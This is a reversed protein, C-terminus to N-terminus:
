ERGKLCVHAAVGGAVARDDPGASRQGRLFLALRALELNLPAGNRGRPSRKCLTGRGTILPLSPPTNAVIIIRLRDHRRRTERSLHPLRTIRMPLFSDPTWSRRRRRRRRRHYVQVHWPHPHRRMGTRGAKKKSREEKGINVHLLTRLYWESSKSSPCKPNSSGALELTSTLIYNSCYLEAM